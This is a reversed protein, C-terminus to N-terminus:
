KNNEFICNYSSDFIKLMGDVGFFYIKGDSSLALRGTWSDMKTDIINGWKSGDLMLHAIYLKDSKEFLFYINGNKDACHKGKIDDYPIKAYWLKNGDRDYKAIGPETGTGMFYIFGDLGCCVMAAGSFIQTPKNTLQAVDAMFYETHVDDESIGLIKKFFGVGGSYEPKGWVSLQRGDISYRKIKNDKLVIITSDSNLAWDDYDKLNLGNIEGVTAGNETSLKMLSLKSKDSVLLMGNWEAISTDDYNINLDSRRWKTKMDPGFSWIMTKGKYDKEKNDESDEDDSDPIENVIYVNGAADIAADSVTEWGQFADPSKPKTIPRSEDVVIYWREVVKVPHIRHWLDDPLYIESDCFKCKIVRESGDVELNGACSPCTFLIPKVANPTKASKKDSSFLDTDEGILYNINYLTDASAGSLHRVSIKSGCNTCVACGAASFEEYKNSDLQIKCKGCRPKQNVYLRQFTYQGTMVTSNRGENEGMKKLDNLIEKVDLISDKWFEYSFEATHQCAPCLFKDVLANLPLPNGCSTCTTKIELCIGKMRDAM